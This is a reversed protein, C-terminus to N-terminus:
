KVFALKNIVQLRETGYEASVVCFYVGSQIGSGSPNWTIKHEGRPLDGNFVTEVSEGLLTFIEMRVKANRALTINLTTAPNFPNPYSKVLLFSSQPSPFESAAVSPDAPNYEMGCVGGFGAGGIITGAGTITDISYVDSIASSSQVGFLKGSEDFFLGTNMFGLNTSGVLSTDGSPIRVKFIKDRFDGVPRYVSAWCENTKPHFTFYAIPAKSSDVRTLQGNTFNYRYILGTTTALHLRGATDFAMSNFAITPFAALQYADGEL